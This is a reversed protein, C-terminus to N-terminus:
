VAPGLIRSAGWSCAQSVKRAAASASNRCVHWPKAHAAEGWIGLPVAVTM